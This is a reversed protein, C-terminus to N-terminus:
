KSEIKYYSNGEYPMPTQCDQCWWWGGEVVNNCKPCKWKMRSCWTIGDKEPTKCADKNLCFDCYQNTM